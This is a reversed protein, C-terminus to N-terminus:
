KRKISVTDEVSVGNIHDVARMSLLEAESLTLTEITETHVPIERENSRTLAISMIERGEKEPVLEDKDAYTDLEFVTFVSELQNLRRTYSFTEASYPLQVGRPILICIRFEGLADYFYRIGYAHSSILKIHQKKEPAANQGEAPTQRLWDAYRAAGNAIAHAPNISRVDVDPFQEAITALVQPMISSGGTLIIHDPKKGKQRDTLARMKRIARDILPRTMEEFQARTLEGEVVNGRLELSWYCIDTESLEEKISRAERRFYAENQPTLEEDPFENRYQEILWKAVAEDWDDGGLAPDGEQDLVEYPVKTEDDNSRVWAADFTGGGLDFVLIDENKKNRAGFYEVAAAVPEPFMTRVTIHTGNPMEISSVAEQILNKQPESFGVPVTVVAEIRFDEAFDIQYNEKAVKVADLVLHRIIEAIVDKVTYSRDGAKLIVGKENLRRKVSTVVSAATRSNELKRMAIRGFAKQKGDDFFVSPIAYTETVPILSRIEDGELYSCFSFTTGFDIGISLTKKPEM